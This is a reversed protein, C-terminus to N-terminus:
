NVWNIERIIEVPHLRQLLQICLQLHFPHRLLQDVNIEGNKVVEKEMSVMVKVMVTLTNVVVVEKNSKVVSM